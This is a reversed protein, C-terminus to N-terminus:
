CDIWFGQHAIFFSGYFPQLHNEWHVIFVAYTFILKHVNLSWLDTLVLYVLHLLTITKHISLLTPMIQHIPQGINICFNASRSTVRTSHYSTNQFAYMDNDEYM